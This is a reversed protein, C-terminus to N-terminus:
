NEATMRIQDTDNTAQAAITAKENRRMSTGVASYKQFTPWRRLGKFAANALETMKDASDATIKNV